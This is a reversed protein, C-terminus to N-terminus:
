YLHHVQREPTGAFEQCLWEIKLLVNSNRRPQAPFEPLRHKLHLCKSSSPTGWRFWKMTTTRFM